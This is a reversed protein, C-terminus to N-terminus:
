RSPTPRAEDILLVPIGDVIPYALGCDTDTCLLENSDYDVALKAHCSPCAAIQLFDPSLIVDAEAPM